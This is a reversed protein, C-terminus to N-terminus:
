KEVSRNTQFSHIHEYKWNMYNELTKKIQDRRVKAMFYSNSLLITLTSDFQLMFCALSHLQIMHKQLIKSGVSKKYIGCAMTLTTKSFDELDEVEVLFWTVKSVICM